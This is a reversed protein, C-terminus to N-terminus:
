ITNIVRKIGDKLIAVNFNIVLALQLHTVRLYTLAQARHVPSLTEVAKLEIILKEGVLLDIRGDGIPAGKYTLSIPVEYRHPIQRLKLEQCLAKLYNLESLGPGLERHVEIAAGIVKEALDEVEAEVRSDHRARFEYFNM